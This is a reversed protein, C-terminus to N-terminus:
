EGEILKFKRLYSINELNDAVISQVLYVFGPGDASLLIYKSDM